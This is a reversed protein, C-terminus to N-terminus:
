RNGISRQFWDWVRGFMSADELVELDSESLEAEQQALSKLTRMNQTSIRGLGDQAEPKTLRVQHQRQNRASARVKDMSKSAEM